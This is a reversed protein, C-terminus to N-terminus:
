VSRQMRAAMHEGIMICTLNTNARTVEPMISGDIVRLKEVGIVRCEPDVVSRRSEGLGDPCTGVLHWTDMVSSHLWEDLAADDSVFDLTRGNLGERRNGIYITESIAQMAWHHGIDLLRRAGDRLRILDREDSLMKEDIEPMAFPDPDVVRLEGRSFNQWTIVM